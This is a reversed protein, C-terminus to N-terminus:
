IRGNEKLAQWAERRYLAAKEKPNDAAIIGRGVIILDAGGDIASKVTVYQQGMKDGKSELNVGPMLLLMDGPIKTKLKKLDDVTKAFGIFGSVWNSNNAGMQITTRSYTDSILNGKASMAALLFASCNSNTGDFLGTLIGEGPLSHVTVFDAWDAIKYVGETFQKRVTSGIDAFKRDEFILFNKDVALQKIRSVFGDDFDNLIDVHTKVMAIEDAVDELIKFFEKQNDVDLSIVLNSKKEAITKILRNTLPNKSAESVAKLNTAPNSVDMQMFSEVAKKQDNTIKSEDLLIQVMEKITVVSILNYGHKNLFGDGDFSRDVVIVFDKVIIGADKFADAIEIKSEGTTMVDDIVLCTEGKKFVGEISLATGYAKPEKRQYILPVNLKGSLVSAIPLATYPIGTLSDFKVDKIKDALLTCIMEVIKPYSVILRLDIYFPSTLGSKLKFTGFKVAGIKHLALVLEKKLSNM